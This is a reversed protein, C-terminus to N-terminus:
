KETSQNISQNISKNTSRNISQNIHETWTIARKVTTFSTWRRKMRCDLKSWAGRPTPEQSVSSMAATVLRVTGSSATNGRHAGCRSHWIWDPWLNRACERGLIWRPCYEGTKGRMRRRLEVIWGAKRLFDLDHRWGFKGKWRKKQWTYQIDM